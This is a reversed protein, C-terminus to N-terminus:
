AFPIIHGARRCRELVWVADLQADRYAQISDRCLQESCWVEMDKAAEDENGEYENKVQERITILDRPLPCEIVRQLTGAARAIDLPCEAAWDGILNGFENTELTEDPRSHSPRTDTFCIGCTENSPSFRDRSAVEWM